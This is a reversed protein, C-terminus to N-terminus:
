EDDGEGEELDDVIPCDIEWDKAFEEGGRWYDFTVTETEESSGAEQWTWYDQEGQECLWILFQHAAAKTEFNFKVTVKEDSM